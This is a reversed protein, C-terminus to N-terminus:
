GGLHLGYDVGVVCDLCIVTLFFLAIELFEGFGIAWLVCVRGCYWVGKHGQFLLWVERVSVRVLCPFVICM